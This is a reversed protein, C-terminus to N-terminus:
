KGVGVIKASQCLVNERQRERREFFIHPGFTTDAVVHREIQFYFSFANNVHRSQFSRRLKGASTMRQGFCRQLLVTPPGPLPLQGSTFRRDNDLL